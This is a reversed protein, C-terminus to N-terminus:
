VYLTRVTYKVFFITFPVTLGLEYFLIYGFKSCVRHVKTIVAAESRDSRDRSREMSHISEIWEIFKKNNKGM